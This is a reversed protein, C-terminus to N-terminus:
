TVCTLIYHLRVVLPRQWGFRPRSIAFSAEDKSIYGSLHDFQEVFNSFKKEEM